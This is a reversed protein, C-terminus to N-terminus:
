FEHDGPEKLTDGAVPQQGATDPQFQRLYDDFNFYRDNRYWLYISDGPYYLYGDDWRPDQMYVRMEGEEELSDLYFQRGINFSSSTTVMLAELHTKGLLFPIKLNRVLTGTGVVMDVVSGIEIKDGPNVTDSGVLQQLVADKDFSPKYILRGPKLRYSHLLSVAQRVTLDVLDPMEVKESLVAVTTVYINRGRKVFSGPQPDQMVVTAKPVANSYISDIVFFDFKKGFGSSDIQALTLGTFDPLVMEKGHRSYINMFRLMFFILLATIIVALGLNLLFLRSTLFRYIM